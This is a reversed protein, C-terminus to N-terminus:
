LIVLFSTYSESPKDELVTVLIQEGYCKDEEHLNGISRAIKIMMLEKYTGSNFVSRRFPSAQFVECMNVMKSM